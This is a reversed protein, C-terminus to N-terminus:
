QGGWRVGCHAKWAEAFPRNDAEPTTPTRAKGSGKANKRFAAGNLKTDSAIRDKVDNVKSTILEQFGQWGQLM